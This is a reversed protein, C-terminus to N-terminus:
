AGTVTDTFLSATGGAGTSLVQGAEYIGGHHAFRGTRGASPGGHLIQGVVRTLKRSAGNPLRRSRWAVHKDPRVLVAGDPELGCIRRFGDLPDAVTGHPGVLILELPCGFSTQAAAAAARWMAAQETSAFLTLGESAVLDATSVQLGARELWLHPLHHGPRATPVFQTASAQTALPPSGDPVVAGLEYSFGAEVNLQGYDEANAAVAAQTAARRREGEPTDGAWIGVERWGEESSMGPRLGMAEGIPAHRGANRLSHEVNFAAVPMRESEYTDLLAEGAHGKLVAALKWALNGADQVATNLGLGGTPPHRHAADGILFVSGVRFREAVVGEYQWHSIAHLQMPVDPVGLQERILQLCTEDDQAAPDGIPFKIGISWQDSDRAWEGPNLSLLSGPVTGRGTPTVFYTLLAEPDAYRSLDMTVYANVVDMLARPGRVEVGLLGTSNRGGDAAVVYRARIDVREGSVRDAVTATVGSDTQALGVLEQQGRIASPCRADAHEWLLRDLRIQPLNAFRRPSAMAYRDADPGGGWAPIEGIKLGHLPTPGALSTYWAVRHWHADPPAMRYIDDAVGLDHFIEMTRVNLLHARPFHQTFDRREVLLVDIGQQALSLATTLGAPGGGVILVSVDLGPPRWPSPAVAPFTRATTV